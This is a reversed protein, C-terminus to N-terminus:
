HSSSYSYSAPLRHQDSVHADRFAIPCLSKVELTIGQQRCAHCQLPEIRIPGRSPFIVPWAQRGAQLCTALGPRDDKRGSARDAYLRELAVGAALLADSQLDLTQTGDSKSVRMYGILM